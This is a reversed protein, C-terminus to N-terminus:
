DFGKVGMVMTDYIGFLIGYPTMLSRDHEIDVVLLAKGM